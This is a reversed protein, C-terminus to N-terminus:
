AKTKRRLFAVGVAGLGLLLMSAPEPAPTYEIHDVTFIYPSLNPDTQFPSFYMFVQDFVAGSYDFVGSISDMSPDYVGANTVVDGSNGLNYFLTVLANPDPGGTYYVSYNFKLGVSPTAFNFVLVGYTTGYIGLQDAAAFDTASGFNDYGMTVGNLTLGAPNNEFTIDVTAPLGSFDVIAAQVPAAMLAWAFVATLIYKKM